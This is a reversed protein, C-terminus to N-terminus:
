GRRRGAEKPGAVTTLGLRLTPAGVSTALPQGDRVCWGVTTDFAIDDGIRDLTELASGAGLEM